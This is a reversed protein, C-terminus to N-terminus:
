VGVLNSDKKRLSGQWAEEMDTSPPLLGELSCQLLAELTVGGPFQSQFYERVQPMTLEGQTVRAEVVSTLQNFRSLLPAEVGCAEAMQVMVGLTYPFETPMGQNLWMVNTGYAHPKIHALVHFVREVFADENGLDVYAARKFVAYVERVLGATIERLRDHGLEGFRNGRAVDGTFIQLAMGVNEAMKKACLQSLNGYEPVIGAQEIVAGFSGLPSDELSLAGHMTPLAGGSFVLSQSDDGCSVTNPRDYFGYGVPVGAENVLRCEFAAVDSLPGRKCNLRAVGPPILDCCVLVGLRKDRGLLPAVVDKALGDNVDGAHTVVQVLEHSPDVQGGVASRFSVGDVPFFTSEHLVNVVEERPLFPLTGDRLGCLSPSALIRDRLLPVRSFLSQIETLTVEKSLAGLQSSVDLKIGPKGQYQWRFPTNPEHVLTVPRGGLLHWVANVAGTPGSGVVAIARGADRASRMLHRFKSM